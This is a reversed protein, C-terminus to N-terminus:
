LLKILNAANTTSICLIYNKILSAEKRKKESKKQKGKARQALHM